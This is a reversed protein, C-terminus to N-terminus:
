AIPALEILPARARAAAALLDRAGAGPPLTASFRV